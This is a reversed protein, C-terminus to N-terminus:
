LCCARPAESGKEECGLVGEEAGFLYGPRVKVCRSGFLLPKHLKLMVDEYLGWRLGNLCGWEEQSFKLAVDRFTLLGQSSAM